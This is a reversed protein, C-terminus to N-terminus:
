AIGSDGRRRSQERRDLVYPLPRDVCGHQKTKPEERQEAQGRPEARCNDLAQEVRRHSSAFELGTDRIITLNKSSLYLGAVLSIWCRQDARGSFLVLVPAFDADDPGQLRTDLNITM